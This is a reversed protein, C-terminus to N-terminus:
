LPITRSTMEHKFFDQSINTFRFLDKNNKQYNENLKWGYNSYFDLPDTTEREEKEGSINENLIVDADEAFSILNAPKM